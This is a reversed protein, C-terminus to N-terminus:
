SPDTDQLYELVVDILWRHNSETFETGVFYCIVIVLGIGVNIQITVIDALFACATWVCYIGFGAYAVVNLPWADDLIEVRTSHDSQPWLYGTLRSDETQDIYRVMFAVLDDDLAQFIVDYHPRNPSRRKPRLGRLHEVCATVDYPVIIECTMKQKRFDYM